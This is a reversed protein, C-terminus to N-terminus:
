FVDEEAIGNELRHPTETPGHPRTVHEPNAQVGGESRGRSTPAPRRDPEPGPTRRRLYAEGRPSLRYGVQLSQTLGLAKLKRVDLKFPQTERGADAALDGARRGPNDRITTLMATTWPGRVSARDLRALRRDLDCVDAATLTAAAALEERPDPGDAPRVVLRFVPDGDTGRLDALLQRVSGYGAPWADDDTLLAPDVVAVEDVAVRGAATRYSRGAVVQARRWRRYLVTVTGALIGERARRELLM